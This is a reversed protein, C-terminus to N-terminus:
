NTRRWRNFPFWIFECKGIINRDTALGWSRGDSSGNRNDGMFLYSHPPIPEAPLALWRKAEDPSSPVFEDACQTISQDDSTTSIPMTNVFTDTYQLPIYRGNDKILKFSAQRIMDRNAIPVVKGEPNGPFTYDVYPEPVYQGNRYLKKDKWEVLDGPVGILRKIFDTDGQGPNLARQPPKFVVIDGHAPKGVRYALKNALIYDNLMLTDIMSGTPIYFTQIGFPRVLMFIVVGTFVVADCIENVVKAVHYLGVRDDPLTYRLTPWVALRLFTFAVAFMVVQSLPARAARDIWVVLGSPETQALLM